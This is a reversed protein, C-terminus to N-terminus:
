ISFLRKLWHNLVKWRSCVSFHIPIRLIVGNKLLKNQIVIEWSFRNADRSISATSLPAYFRIFFHFWLNTLLRKHQCGIRLFINQYEATLRHTRHRQFHVVIKQKFDSWCNDSAEILVQELFTWLKVTYASEDAFVCRVIMQWIQISIKAKKKMKELYAINSTNM